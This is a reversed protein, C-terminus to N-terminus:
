AFNYLKKFKNSQPVTLVLAANREIIWVPNSIAGANLAKVFIGPNKNNSGFDVLHNTTISLLKGLDGYVRIGELRLRKNELLRIQNNEIILSSCNGVFIGFYDKKEELGAVEIRNSIISTMGVIDPEGKQSERHSAGVHIGQKFRYVSNDKIQIDFIKTGAVVIGRNGLILPKDVKIIPGMLNNGEIFTKSMNVALIGVQNHGVEFHSHRINVTGNKAANAARMVTICTAERKTNTTAICKFSVNEVVVNQCGRMSLVGNLNNKNTAKRFGTGKSEVYLDRITIDKCNIFEFASESYKVSINTGRGGGVFTLHGKNRLEISNELSYEGVQFCILADQNNPISTLVQHWNKGPTILLTCMKKKCLNDIADQLNTSGNLRCATGDFKIDSATINNLSPFYSRCDEIVKGKIESGNNFWKIIALPAFFQRVGLPAKNKVLEWPVVMNPTEPRAAIVWNLGANRNQGTITIALGTNGITAPVSPTFSIRENSTTDTGRNWVRLYYYELTKQSNGSSCAKPHPQKITQFDKRKKWEEGYDSPVPTKITFEQTDPNYSGDVKTLFGQQEAVKEHNPLYASWPLIEVIQNSLPWHYQDKPETIMKIVSQNVGTSDLKLEIRYISSGNDYGWNFHNSDILQIRIAQNEAGLYGGISSPACLDIQTPVTNVCTVKLRADTILENEKNLTGKSSMKNKWVALANSCNKTGINELVKVRRMNRIRTSTDVGGLAVEFLEEDEIASVTQQWAELYVLDYRENGANPLNLPVNDEHEKQLWDKQLHYQENKELELRLGGLHFSGPCINFDIYETLHNADAPMIRPMQIGFGQNQTAASGIIQVQNRRDIEQTIRENENIDEDTIVRGQQLRIGVYHKKPDSGVRSIDNSEM